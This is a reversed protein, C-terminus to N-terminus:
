ILADRFTDPNAPDFATTNFAVLLMPKTGTNQFAHSVGAPITFRLTEGDPVPIDRVTGDERVRVLAPGILVAIEDSRHHVHNGRVGGPETLVVHVNRQGSLIEAGVPEFVIGRSDRFCHVAEVTAKAV